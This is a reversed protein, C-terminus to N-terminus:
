KNLNLGINVNKLDIRVGKKSFDFEIPNWSNALICFEEIHSIVFPRLINNKDITLRIIGFISSANSQIVELYGSKPQSLSAVDNVICQINQKIKVINKPDNELEMIECTLTKIEDRKKNVLELLALMFKEKEAEPM